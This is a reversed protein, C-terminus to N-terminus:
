EITWEVKILQEFQRIGGVLLTFEDQTIKYLDDVEVKESTRLTGDSVNIFMVAQNNGVYQISYVSDNGKFMFKDGIRYLKKKFLQPFENEILKNTEAESWDYLTKIFTKTTALTENDMYPAVYDADVIRSCEEVHWFQTTDRYLPEHTLTVVTGIPIQHNNKDATIVVKDGAKYIM